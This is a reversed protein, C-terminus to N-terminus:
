SKKQFDSETLGEQALITHLVSIDSSVDWATDRFISDLIKEFAVNLTDLTKEIEEKSSRINEGQIPQSDMDEYADLLKVTMPLYYDMMKKLDPIIEPHEKARQFIKQVLLEMRSIKESILEGPIADNSARIKRLYENGKDLVDQVEKSIQEEKEVSVTPAEQAKREELQRESEQYQRYMANTTILCTEGKDVHGELFWGKAIMKKIDRKVFKIPRGVGQSLKEFESYSRNGLVSLYKRFRGLAGLKSCGRGLLVGGGALGLLLMGLGIGWSSGIGTVAAGILAGITGLGTATCVIGGAVTMLVGKAQEGGTRRYVMPRTERVPAPAPATQKRFSPQQYSHVKDNRDNFNFANRLAESGNDVATNVARQITKDLERFNKSDIATEIIDQIQDGLDYFDQEKMNEETRDVGRRQNYVVISSFVLFLFLFAM